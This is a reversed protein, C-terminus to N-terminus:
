RINLGGLECKYAFEVWNYATQVEDLEDYYDDMLLDDIREALTMM